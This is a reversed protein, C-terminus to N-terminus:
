GLWESLTDPMATAKAEDLILVWAGTTHRNLIIDGDEKTLV